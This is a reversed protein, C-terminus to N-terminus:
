ACGFSLINNNKACLFDISQFSFKRHFYEQALHVDNRSLRVCVEFCDLCGYGLCDGFVGFEDNKRREAEGPGHGSVEKQLLGEPFLAVLETFFDDGKRFVDVDNKAVDVVFVAVLDDVGARALEGFLGQRFHNVVSNDFYNHREEFNDVFCHDGLLKDVALYDFQAAFSVIGM